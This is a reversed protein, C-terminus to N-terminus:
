CELMDQWYELEDDVTREPQIYSPGHYKGTTETMWQLVRPHVRVKAPDFHLVQLGEMSTARSLAVYAQGKEFIKNLDVRVRELTQGQSKHISLAWALILPVQERTAEVTGEASVVEFTLPVCLQVLGNLFQVVPWVSNLRLIQEVKRQRQEESQSMPAQPESAGPMGVRPGGPIDPVGQQNRERSDPLAIEIHQAKADRPTLFSVVRGVSGNVLLGQIINLIIGRVKVLMVQAGVKLPLKQPVIVDKLAREVRDPHYPRGEDDRGPLDMSEYIRANGPLQKLRYSNAGQVEQRTPYLETPDIGDTYRLPRDLKTFATVIDPTVHGFRMANLMDVFAQDRQRFVRTLVIPDGVCRSWSEADFAFTAPIQAGTGSKDPVPPLQCFDGSLVLQGIALKDFLKGDIMSVQPSPETDSVPEEPPTALFREEELTLVFGNARKALLEERARKAAMFERRSIGLIKGVLADKDEKGLGIGAWSHLTCGGINVSAIGTSATVGLRSSPRGGRLKIIERLLVSKGTGASGTFFVSKGRKVMDLVEQQEPSLKIEQAPERATTEPAEIEIAAADAFAPPPVQTAVRSPPGDVDM